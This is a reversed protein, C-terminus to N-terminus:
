VSIKLIIKGKWKMKDLKKDFKIKKKALYADYRM